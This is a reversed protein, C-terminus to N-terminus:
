RVPLSHSINSPLNKRSCRPTSVSEEVAIRCRRTRLTISDSGHILSVRHVSTAFLIRYDATVALGGSRTQYAFVELDSEDSKM